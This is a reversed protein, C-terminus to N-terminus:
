IEENREVRRENNLLAYSSPPQVKAVMAAASQATQRSANLSVSQTAALSGHQWLSVEV